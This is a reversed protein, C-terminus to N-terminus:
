YLQKGRQIKEDSLEVVPEINAFPANRLTEFNSNKKTEEVKKAPEKEETKKEEEVKAETKKEEEVVKAENKKGCSEKYKEVLENVTMEDEDVKVMHDGNAMVKEVPKKEENKKEEVVPPKEENKKEEEIEVENLFKKLREIIKMSIDGQTENETSVVKTDVSNKLLELETIKKENYAKFEDPTMIVSEEYRPNPVIALHEYEACTVEKEYDVNHCKGGGAFTKPSYANSLKWGMRVAEHGADSVVIFKTWHAGDPPNFFSEVVYGAAEEQLKDLDVADVHRVYVPKGAFSKDSQKLTDGKILSGARCRHSQTSPWARACTCASTFRLFLKLM